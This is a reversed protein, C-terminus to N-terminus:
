ATLSQMGNKLWNWISTRTNKILYAFKNKVRKVKKSDFLKSLAYQLLWGGIIGILFGIYPIVKAIKNFLIGAGQVVFNIIIDAVCDVIFRDISAGTTYVTTLTTVLVIFSLAYGIWKLYKCIKDIDKYLDKIDNLHRQQKKTLLIVSTELSVKEKHYSIKILNLIDDIVGLASSLANVLSEIAGYGFEDNLNVCNNKCYIFLNCELIKNEIGLFVPTDGNVFRGVNADYYRSQLYYLGIEDDFYYCRYRFPNITAIDDGCTLETNTIASTCTGWADYSYRAVTQADKDTIAIVDGQLNKVFYYPVNNYLIGCVSDENDYLPILTNYGWTERLIKTGDLIYTHKVGDVTKSTRIGNANYTYTNGDFSKLQRGKEWTLTHGLYSTPNGQADYTISDDGVKTLKDKWVSDGYTYTIGNKSVINGYNDYTM